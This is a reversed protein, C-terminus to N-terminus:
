QSSAVAKERESRTGFPWYSRRLGTGGPQHAADPRIRGDDNPPRLADLRTRRGRLTPRPPTQDDFITAARLAAGGLQGMTARHPRQRQRVPPNTDVRRTAGRMPHPRRAAPTTHADLQAPPAQSARIARSAQADELEAKAELQDIYKGPKAGEAILQERAKHWHARQEEYQEDTLDHTLSVLDSVDGQFPVCDKWPNFRGPFTPPM